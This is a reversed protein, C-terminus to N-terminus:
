LGNEGRAEEAQEYKKVMLTVYGEGGGYALREYGIVVKHGQDMLDLAKDTFAEAREFGDIFYNTFGPVESYGADKAELNGWSFFMGPIEGGELKERDVGNELIFDQYCRLCIQEDDRYRYQIHWGNMPHRECIERGCPECWFYSFDGEYLYMDACEESCFRKATEQEDWPTEYVYRTQSRRAKKEYCLDCPEELRDARDLLYSHIKNARDLVMDSVAKEFGPLALPSRDLITEYLQEVSPVEDPSM